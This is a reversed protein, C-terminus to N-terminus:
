QLYYFKPAPDLFGLNVATPIRKAFWSVGEIRLNAGVEAGVEGVLPPRETRLSRKRVLAVSSLNWNILIERLLVGCIPLESLVKDLVWGLICDATSPDKTTKEPKM